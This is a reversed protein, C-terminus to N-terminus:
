PHKRFKWKLLVRAPSGACRPACATGYKHLPRKLIFESFETNIMVAMVGGRVCLYGASVGNIKELAGTIFLLQPSLKMEPSDM